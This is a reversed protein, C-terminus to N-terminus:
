IFLFKVDKLLRKRGFKTIPWIKLRVFVVLNRLIPEEAWWDRPVGMTAVLLHRTPEGPAKQTMM